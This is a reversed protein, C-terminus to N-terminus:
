ASESERSDHKGSQADGDVQEVGIRFRSVSVARIPKGADIFGYEAVVDVLQEGFEATGSPRLPSRAFGAAGVQVATAGDDLPTPNMAALMGEGNTVHQESSLILKGMVPFRNTYRSFFYIGVGAAFVALMVISVAWALDSGDGTGVGPFLQGAQAFTGVLGAFLSIIGLIGPVGFGPVVFIEILVLGIGMLIAALAWWSAAGILMPPVVLGTLALIAILGPIGLGPMSLEIFMAMMFVVVLLGRVVLGSMGMTMFRVFSESWTRDLRRMNTAGMYNRLDEDTRVSVAPDALGYDKLDQEKLTLLTKGDTAYHVLEYRGNVNPEIVPRQSTVELSDEVQETLSESMTPSAPTFAPAESTENAKSSGSRSSSSGGIPASRSVTGAGSAVHPRGRPPEEGFITRYEDETVFFQQGTQKDRILWLEVGLSVLSQVLMEDYGNRRASDVIEALLPSLIKQRETEPLEMLGALPSVAIPAADGMTAGPSVIIRKCALAVIAGGSYAMPNIWAVSNQIPSRKIASCIELVAGVEGGPTNLEVVIGDAGGQEALELRRKFSRSTVADIPGEITIVVLNPALRSAPVTGMISPTGVSDTNRPVPAESSPSSAFGVQAISFAAILGVLVSRALSRPIITSFLPSEMRTNM